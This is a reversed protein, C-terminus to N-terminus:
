FDNPLVRLLKMSNLIDLRRGFVIPIGNYFDNDSSCLLKAHKVVQNADMKEILGRYRHTSIDVGPSVFLWCRACQFVPQGNRYGIM